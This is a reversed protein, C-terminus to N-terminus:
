KKFLNYISVGATVLFMVGNVFTGIGSCVSTGKVAKVARDARQTETVARTTAEEARTSAVNGRQKEDKNEQTLAEIFGGIVSGFNIEEKDESDGGFLGQLGQLKDLFGAKTRRAKSHFKELSRKLGSHKNVLMELFDDDLDDLCGLSSLGKKLTTVPNDEKQLQEDEDYSVRGEELDKLTGFDDEEPIRSPSKGRRVGVFRNGGRGRSRGRILCGKEDLSPIASLEVDDRGQEEGQLASLPDMAFLNTTGAFFLTLFAYVFFKRM